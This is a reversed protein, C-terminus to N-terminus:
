GEVKLWGGGTWVKRSYEAFTLVFRDRASEHQICVVGYFTDTLNGQRDFVLVTL